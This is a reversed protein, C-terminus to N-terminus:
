MLLANRRLRHFEDETVRRISFGRREKQVNWILKSGKVQYFTGTSGSFVIPKKSLIKKLNKVEAPSFEAFSLTVGKGAIELLEDKSEANPYYFKHFEM